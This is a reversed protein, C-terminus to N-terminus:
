GDENVKWKPNVKMGRPLSGNKRYFAHQLQRNDRKQMLLGIEADNTRSVLRFRDMLINEKEVEMEEVHADWGMEAQRVGASGKAQTAHKRIYDAREKLAAQKYLAHEIIMINGRRTNEYGAVSKQFAAMERESIAGKTASIRKFVENMTWTRLTEWRGIESDKIDNM